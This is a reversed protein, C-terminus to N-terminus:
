TAVSACRDVLCGSLVPLVPAGQQLETLPVLQCRQRGPASGLAEASEVSLRIAAPPAAALQLQLVTVPQLQRTPSVVREDAVGIRVVLQAIGM